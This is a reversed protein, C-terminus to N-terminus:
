FVIIAFGNKAFLATYFDQHIKINKCFSGMIKKNMILKLLEDLTMFQREDCLCKCYLSIYLDNELIFPKVSSIQFCRPCFIWYNQIIKNYEENLKRQNISTKNGM